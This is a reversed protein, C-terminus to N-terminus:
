PSHQEITDNHAAYQEIPPGNYAALLTQSALVRGAHVPGKSMADSKNGSKEEKVLWWSSIIIILRDCLWWLAPWLFLAGNTRSLTRWLTSSEYDLWNVQSGNKQAMPVTVQINVDNDDIHYNASNENWKKSRFKTPPRPSLTGSGRDINNISTCASRIVIHRQQTLGRIWRGHYGHTYGDISTQICVCVCLRVSTCLLKQSFYM